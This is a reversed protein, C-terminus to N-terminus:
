GTSDTHRPGTRAQQAPPCPTGRGCPPRQALRGGEVIRLVEAVPRRPTPPPLAGAPAIGLRLIMQPHDTWGMMTRLRARFALLDVAQSLACTALGQREAEVMLRMMAEGGQLHARPGMTSTLVVALLPHEDVDLDILQLGPTALGFERLAIDTHRPHEASMHPVATVPVGDPSTPDSRVWSALEAAYDADHREIHDAQSVAVALEVYEDERVPFHVYVGPEATAERLQEIAEPPVPDAAFPRRDSQRRRAAAVRDLDLQTPEARSLPRVRALLDPDAPDPLRTITVTWGAARLGYIALALAAGCSILLSHGDPDVVALQRSRDTRLDLRDSGFEWQWPQTNYISPARIAVAIAAEVSELDFPRAAEPSASESQDAREPKSM